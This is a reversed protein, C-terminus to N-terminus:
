KKLTLSITKNAPKGNTPSFEINLSFKIKGSSALAKMGASTPKLMLYVQGAKTTSVKGSKILPSPTGSTALTKHVFILKGPGPVTVLERWMGMAKNYTAHTNVQFKNSPVATGKPHQCIVPDFWTTHDRNAPVVIFENAIPGSTTVAATFSAGPVVANGSLLWATTTKEPVGTTALTGEMGTGSGTLKTITGGPAGFAFGGQEVGNAPLTVVLTYSTGSGSAVCRDGSPSQIVAGSTAVLFAAPVFLATVFIWLRNM